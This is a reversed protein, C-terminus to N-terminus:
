VPVPPNVVVAATVLVTFKPAVAPPVDVFAGFKVRVADPVETIVNVVALQNLVNLKPVVANVIAAVLKFKFPKVSEVPPVNVERVADILPVPVIVLLPFVVNPGNTMLLPAPVVVNAAANVQVVYVCVAPAM